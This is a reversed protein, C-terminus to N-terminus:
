LDESKRTAWAFTFIDFDEVFSLKLESDVCEILSHYRRFIDALTAVSEKLDGYNPPAQSLGRRDHHAIIRDVYQKVAQATKDLLALDDDLQSPALEGLSVSGEEMKSKIEELLIRLSLNTGDKNKKETLRRVASATTSVYAFNLMDFYPSRMKLLRPNRQIVDKQLRWYTDDDTVLGVLEDKIEHLRDRLVAPRDDVPTGMAIVERM